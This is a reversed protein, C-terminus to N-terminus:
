WRCTVASVPMRVGADREIDDLSRVRGFAEHQQGLAPDHLASVAPMAAATAEGFVDLMEGAALDAEDNEGHDAEHGSPNYAEFARAFQGSLSQVRVCGFM